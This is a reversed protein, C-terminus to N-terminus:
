GRPGVAEDRPRTATETTPLAWSSEPRGLLYGQGYTAGVARAIELEGSTEIGEIVVEVGKSLAYSVLLRLVEAQAPNTDCGAVLCRDIKAVDPRLALIRAFDTSSSGVDDLAVRAGRVRLRALLEILEGDSLGDRHEVLEVVVGALNMPLDSWFRQSRLARESVNVFLEVDDPRDLRGLVRTAAALELLDGFGQAHADTFVAEVQTTHPFRSLCEYATIIGSSLHVIPQVATQLDRLPGPLGPQGVPAAVPRGGGDCKAQYLAADARMMLAGADHGPAWEAVGASTARQAPVLLQLQEVREMADALGMGPLLLAFQADSYRALQEEERLAVSWEDTLRRLFRDAASTGQESRLGALDDIEVMAVSLAREDGAARLCSLELGREWGRRNPLGTVDDVRSVEALEDAQASLRTFLMTMRVGVLVAVAVGALGVPWLQSVDRNWIAALVSAAPLVLGATLMLIKNRAAPPEDASTPGGVACVRRLSHHWTAAAFLVMAVMHLSRVVADTRILGLDHGVSWLGAALGVVTAIELLALSPTRFGDNLALRAVAALAAVLAIAHVVVMVRTLPSRAEAVGPLVMLQVVPALAGIGLVLAEAWGDNALWRSREHAIMTASVAVAVSGVLYCAAVQDLLPHGLPGLGLAGDVAVVVDGLWLLVVAALGVLWGRDSVRHRRSQSYAAAAVAATEVVAQIASQDYSSLLVSGACAAVVAVLLSWGRPSM